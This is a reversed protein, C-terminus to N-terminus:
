RPDGTIPAISVALLEHDSIATVGDEAVAPVMAPDSARLGRAFFWDLKGLPPAAAGDTGSRVTPGPANCAHWDYGAAAAVQFLPEYPVPDVLRTADEALLARRAAPDAALNRPASNTNFDGGIVVPGGDAYRDVAGLLRATQDARQDPDGHSELHVSVVTVSAGALPLRAALAIRGGVRREGRSGDFWDGDRELRILAPRELAHRSLIAAGHLGASNRAGAHRRREPANGLGLEIFEIAFAYGHGMREALERTTHAQGSRAMGLDMECLLNVEAAARRLLAASDDLHKCREANWFAVRLPTGAPAVPRPPRGLEIRPM